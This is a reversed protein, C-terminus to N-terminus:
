AALQMKREKLIIKRLKTLASLEIQRIRERSVRLKLAIEELTPREEGDFGFRWRLVQASREPLQALLRLVTGRSFQEEVYDSPAEANEDAIVEGFTTGDEDGLCADISVPQAAANRWSAICDSDTGVECALEEDSPERELQEHLRTQARRLTSLKAIFHVPLRITKSQNALARCISQKIWWAAYTSFKVGRAPDYRDVAKMLGINGESIIDLLPLGYNEYSRAIRVVLRLNAKIMHERAAQDGAQVRYALQCEEERTLLTTGSIEDLYLRYIDGSRAGSHRAEAVFTNTDM